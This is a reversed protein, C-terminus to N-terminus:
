DLLLGPLDNASVLPSVPLDRDPSPLNYASPALDNPTDSHFISALYQCQLRGPGLEFSGGGYINIGNDACYDYFAFLKEISGFRCPKCNLTKPKHELSEVDAVSHIPEDWTIRDLHPKLVTKCESNSLDPDEIWADPFFEATRRYLTPDAPQDVITNRYLGKLDTTRVAGTQALRDFLDENWASEPDLKFELNPYMSLLKLVPDASPPEPIRLSVVFRLPKSPIGLVESLSADSQRLALDLAASEFGWRRYLRYAPNDPAKPFLDLQDLHNSLESLTYSGQLPLTPGEAHLQQHLDTEYTPDEGVGEQGLGSMRIVTTM